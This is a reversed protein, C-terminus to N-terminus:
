TKAKVHKLLTLLPKPNVHAACTNGHGYMSLKADCVVCRRDAIRRRERRAAERREAAADANAAMRCTDSCYTRSTSSSVIEKDCRICRKM